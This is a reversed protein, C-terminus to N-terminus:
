YWAFFGIDCGVLSNVMSLCRVKSGKAKGYKFKILKTATTKTVVGNENTDLAYIVAQTAKGKKISYVYRTEPFIVQAGTATDIRIRGEEVVFGNKNFTAYGKNIYPEKGSFVEGNNVSTWTGDANEQYSYTDTGDVESYGHSGSEIIMSPVGKKHTVAFLYTGNSAEAYTSGSVYKKNESSASAYSTALGSKNYAISTNGANASVDDGKFVPTDGSYDYSENSTMKSRAISVVNGKKYKRTEYVKGAGDKFKASKPSSGKYKYKATTVYKSGGVPIGLFYSSYSTTAFETPYNKKDYTYTTQYDAQWRGSDRLEYVTVSKVLKGGGSSKAAVPVPIMLAVVMALVLARSLWRKLKM